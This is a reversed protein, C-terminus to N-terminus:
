FRFGFRLQPGFTSMNYVFRDAGSGHEYDIDIVRYGLTMYSRGSFRYGADVQIQWILDSGIGFGGINGRGHFFWKDNLEHTVRAVLVPDIWDEDTQAEIVPAVGAVPNFVLGLEADIKNYVAAAGLELWPSIRRLVALEWGVQSVEVDGSSLVQGQKVDAGLKM